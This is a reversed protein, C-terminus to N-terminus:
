PRGKGAAIGCSAMGVLVKTTDPYYLRSSYDTNIKELDAKSQIKM